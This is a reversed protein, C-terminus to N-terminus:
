PIKGWSKKGAASLNCQAHSPGLYITRDDAHDLHWKSAPEIVQSCRACTIAEGTDIRRQWGARLRDHAADYGRAQRTGRARDAERRHSECRPTDTLAPCGPEACVTRARPM